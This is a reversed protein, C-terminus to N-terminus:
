TKVPIQSCACASINISKSLCRNRIKAKGAVIRVRCDAAQSARCGPPRARPVPLLAARRRSEQPKQAGHPLAEQVSRPGGACSCSMAWAARVPGLLKRASEVLAKSSQHLSNQLILAPRWSPLLWRTACTTILPGAPWAVITALLRPKPIKLEERIM